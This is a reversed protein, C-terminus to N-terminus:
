RVKLDEKDTVTSLLQFFKDAQADFENLGSSRVSFLLLDAKQPLSLIVEFEIIGYVLTFM